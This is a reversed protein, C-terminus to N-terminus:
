PLHELLVMDVNYRCASIDRGSTALALVITLACTIVLEPCSSIITHTRTAALELTWLARALQTLLSSVSQELM